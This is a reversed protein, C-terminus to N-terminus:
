LCVCVRVARCGVVAPSLVCCYCVVVRLVLGGVLVFLVGCCLVLLCVCDCDIVYVVLCILVFLCCCCCCCSCCWSLLWLMLWVILFVFWSACVVVVCFLLWRCADAGLLMVCGCCVLVFVSM